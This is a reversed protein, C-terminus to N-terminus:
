QAALWACADGRSREGVVVDGLEHRVIGVVHADADLAIHRVVGPIGPRYTLKEVHGVEPRQNRRRSRFRLRNEHWLRAVRYLSGGCEVRTSEAVFVVIAHEVISGHAHPKRDDVRSTDAGEHVEVVESKCIWPLILDAGVGSVEEPRSEGIEALGLSVVDQRGRDAVASLKQVVAQRRETGIGTDIQELGSV